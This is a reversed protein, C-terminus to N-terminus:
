PKGGAAGDADRLHQLVGRCANTDDDKGPAILALLAAAPAAVTGLAVAGAARAILPGPEVGVDPNKLTGQITLPSRLTLFRPGKTHPKVTLDFRETALNITGDVRVTAKPTDLMFLRAHFVGDSAPLDAAACNIQVTDSGFLKAMAVHGLNLGAEELLVQRIRGREMLLKLEGDASGLLEAVSNGTMDLDLGGNIQGLSARVQKAEPFLRKLEVHRVDLTLAGPMPSRSGDLTITGAITGSALGVRLPSLQLMGNKLKIHTTLDTLPPLPDFQIRDGTFDVAADMAQWRDTHFPAVPLVQGAPKHPAQAKAQAATANKGVLTGLDGARLQDSHLSGTLTPQDISNDFTLSGRLDSGGVRGHFDQYSYRAGHPDSFAVKLHGETRYPPTVPLNVGTTPYLDGMSAGALWLQLDLGALHMPQILTGVLAVRSDGSHLDLQLPFPQDPDRLALVGGSKGHGTLPAGRYSGQLQWAFRFRASAPAIDRGSAGAEPSSASSAPTAAPSTDEDGARIPHDFQAALEQRAARAQRAVVQNYPIADGLAQVKAQLQVQTPEDRLRIRGQDFGIRELKLTWGSSSGAQDKSDFHWNARAPHEERELDLQPHVLRLLPIRVQRQFLAWPSVTFRVADLRAFLPKDAWDPNDITIRRLTFHPWPLLSQLVGADTDRRWDVTVNGHIVVSRGLADSLRQDAWPKLRNWNFTAVFIVLAVLLALVVGVIWLVVKVSRAM